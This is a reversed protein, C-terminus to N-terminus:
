VSYAPLTTLASNAPLGPWIRKSHVSDNRLRGLGSTNPQPRTMVVPNWSSKCPMKACAVVTKLQM